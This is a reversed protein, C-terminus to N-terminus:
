VGLSASFPLPQLYCHPAIFGLSFTCCYDKSPVHLLCPTLMFGTASAVGGLAESKCRHSLSAGRLDTVCPCAAATHSLVAKNVTSM